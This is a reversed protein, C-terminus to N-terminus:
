DAEVLRLLYQGYENKKLPQALEIVQERTIYGMRYAIEELNAVQLNQMRQVTEIYQAAELLSEHTGTDLWAFGRGMVEVDLDGRKLYADNVDTIELEGRPSPQINKAIEVVDNDYFYLGTIAYDSKPNEPKEEVSVARMNEDFEVVGFREPDKVQYGFVTAGKEKAAARALM